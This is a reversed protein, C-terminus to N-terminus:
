RGLFPSRSVNTQIVGDIVTKTTRFTTVHLTSHCVKRVKKTPDVATHSKARTSSIQALGGNCCIDNWRNLGGHTMTYVIAEAGPGNRNITSARVTRRIMRSRWTVRLHYLRTSSMLELLEQDECVNSRSGFAFEMEM